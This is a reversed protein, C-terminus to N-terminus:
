DREGEDEAEHEKDKDSSDHKGSKRSEESLRAPLAAIKATAEDLATRMARVATQAIADVDTSTANVTGGAAPAPMVVDDAEDEDDNDEDKDEDDTADEDQDEGVAEDEDPEVCSTMGRIASVAKERIQKLLGQTASVLRRGPDGKDKAAARLALNDQAFAGDVTRIAASRARAEDACSTPSTSVVNARPSTTLAAARTEAAPRTVAVATVGDHTTASVLAGTTGVIFVAAAAAGKSHPLLALLKALM